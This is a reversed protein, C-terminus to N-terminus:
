FSKQGERYKALVGMLWEETPLTGQPTEVLYPKGSLFSKSGCLRIFDEPTKVRSKCYNYKDMMHKVAEDSSHKEGNRIFVLHSNAIAGVLCSIAQETSQEPCEPPAALALSSFLVLLVLSYSAIRAISNM